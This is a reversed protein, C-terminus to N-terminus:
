VLMWAKEKVAEQYRTTELNVQLRPTLTQKSMGKFTNPFYLKIILYYKQFFCLGVELGEGACSRTFSLITHGLLSRPVM